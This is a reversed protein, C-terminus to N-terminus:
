NRSPFIGQIAVQYTIALYPTRIDFAQSQGTQTSQATFAGSSQSSWGTTNNSLPAPMANTPDSTAGSGRGSAGVGLAHSHAPLNAATLNATERGGRQGVKFSSLGPGNGHGIPSRGQLDPLAFTTRGDGGYITGYLSFLATNQSIPLLQGQAFAFSRIAFNGGFMIIQGIYFEM